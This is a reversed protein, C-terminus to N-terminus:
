VHPETEADSEDAYRNPQYTLNLNDEIEVGFIIDDDDNDSERCCKDAVRKEEDTM